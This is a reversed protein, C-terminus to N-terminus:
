FQALDRRGSYYISLRTGSPMDRFQKVTEVVVVPWDHSVQQGVVRVPGWPHLRAMTGVPWSRAWKRALKVGEAKTRRPAEIIMTM